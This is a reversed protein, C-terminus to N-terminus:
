AQVTILFFVHRTNRNSSQVKSTTKTRTPGCSVIPLASPYGGTGGVRCGCDRVLSAIVQGSSRQVPRVAKRAGGAASRWGIPREVCRPACGDGPHGWSVLGHVKRVSPESVGGSSGGSPPGSWISSGVCRHFTVLCAVLPGRSGTVGFWAKPTNVECFTASFNSYYRENNNPL